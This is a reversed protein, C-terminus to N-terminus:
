SQSKVCSCTTTTAFKNKVICVKDTIDDRLDKYQDQMLNNCVTDNQHFDVICSKYILQQSFSGTAINASLAFFFIAPEITINTLVLWLKTKIWALQSNLKKVIQDLTSTEPEM